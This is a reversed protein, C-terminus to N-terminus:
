EKRCYVELALGLNIRTLNYLLRTCLGYFRMIPMTQETDITIKEVSFGAKEIIKKLTRGNFHYFHLEKADKSFLKFRKFKVFFYALRYLFNPINPVAVILTGKPKLIRKIEILTALPDKMHELVHWATVLDFFNDEFGSDKLEGRSVDLNFSNKIFAVAYESVETGWVQWGSNRAESLFLGTGCGVDLLRGSNKIKKIKKFRRRWMAKRATLQTKLWEEYYEKNYHEYLEAVEPQPNVYILGCNKCQIVKYPHDIEIIKGENNNCLNCNLNNM